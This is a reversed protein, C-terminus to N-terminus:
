EDITFIMVDPDYGSVTNKLLSKWSQSSSKLQGYLNSFQLFEPSNNKRQLRKYYKGYWLMPPRVLGILLVNINWPSTSSCNKNSITWAVKKKKERRSDKIGKNMVKNKVNLAM